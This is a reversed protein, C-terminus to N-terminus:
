HTPHSRAAAWCVAAQRPTLGTANRPLLLESCHLCSPGFPGSFWGPQTMLKSHAPSRPCSAEYGIGWKRRKWIFLLLGSGRELGEGFEEELSWNEYNFLDVVIIFAVSKIWLLFSYGHAWVTILLQTFLYILSFPYSKKVASSWSTLTFPIASIFFWWEPLCCLLLQQLCFDNIFSLILLFLTTLLLINAYLQLKLGM